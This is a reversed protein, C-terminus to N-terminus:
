CYTCCYDTTTYMYRGGWGHGSRFYVCILGKLLLRNYLSVLICFNVVGIQCIITTWILSNKGKCWVCIVKTSKKKWLYHFHKIEKNACSLYYLAISCINIDDLWTYTQICTECILIGNIKIESDRVFLDISQNNDDFLYHKM